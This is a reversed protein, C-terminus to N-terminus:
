CTKKLFTSSYMHPVSHRKSKQEFFWLSFWLSIQEQNKTLYLPMYRFDPLNRLDRSKSLRKEFGWSDMLTIANINVFSFEVIECHSNFNFSGKFYLTIVVVSPGSSFIPLIINIRELQLLSIDTFSIFCQLSFSLWLGGPLESASGINSM